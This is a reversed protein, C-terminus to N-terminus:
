FANTDLDNLDIAIHKQRELQIVTITYKNKNELVSKKNEYEDKVITLLCYNVQDNVKAYTVYLTNNKM